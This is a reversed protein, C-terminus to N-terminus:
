IKPLVLPRGFLGQLGILCPCGLGSNLSKSDIRSLPLLRASTLPRLGCIAQQSSTAIRQKEIACHAYPKPPRALFSTLCLTRQAHLSFSAHQKSSRNEECEGTLTPNREFLTLYIKAACHAYPKPPRALFPTLCLTRHAHLSFSAHQKSSHNEECEGTLTPNREFLTLYVKAPCYAYPISPPGLVINQM